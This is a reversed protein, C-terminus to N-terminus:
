KFTVNRRQKKLSVVDTLLKFNPQIVYHQAANSVYFEATDCDLWSSRSACSTHAGGRVVVWLMYIYLAYFAVRVTAVQRSIRANAFREGDFLRWVCDDSLGDIVPAVAARLALSRRVGCRPLPAASAVSPQAVANAVEVDNLQWM